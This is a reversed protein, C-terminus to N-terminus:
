ILAPLVEKGLRRGHDGQLCEGFQEFGQDGEVAEGLLVTFSPEEGWRPLPNPHPAFLSNGQRSFARVRGGRRAPGGEGATRALPMAVMLGGIVAM